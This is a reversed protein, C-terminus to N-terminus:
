KLATDNAAFYSAVAEREREGLHPNWVDLILVARRRNSRNWAEHEITDDFAFAKNEVWERTEGGVRFGCAEPVELALHIIARTNTVGTHPPIHSHPQLISFFANPARGPIRMLPLRELLSATHPCRALVAENAVGYEWLFCVSWDLSGDLLTWKNEPTGPEMRVYPRIDEGPAALLASMEAAIFPAHAELDEFWPFHKRDFYEDPPLFPYHLGACENHYIRRRGLATDVFAGIRRREGEDESARMAELASQTQGELRVRLESCYREGDDLEAALAPSIRPLQAALQRVGNWGALAATEEGLRQLLQAMRLQAIFDVRNISLAHNLADREGAADGRLRYAHALNIWLPAADPDAETAERFAAIASM